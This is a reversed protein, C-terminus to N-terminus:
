STSIDLFSVGLQKKSFHIAALFNNNKAQLIAEAIASSENSVNISYVLVDGDAEIYINYRM